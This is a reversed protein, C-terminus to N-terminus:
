KNNSIISSNEEDRDKSYYEILQFIVLSLSLTLTPNATIEVEIESQDRFKEGLSEFPDLNNVTYLFAKKMMLLIWLHKLHKLQCNDIIKTSLVADSNCRLSMTSPDIYISRVFNSLYTAQNPQTTIAYNIIINLLSLVEATENITIYDKFISAQISPDMYEQM